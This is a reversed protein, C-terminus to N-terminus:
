EVEGWAYASGAGVVLACVGIQIAAGVPGGTVFCAISLLALFLALLTTVVAWIVMGM